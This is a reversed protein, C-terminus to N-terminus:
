ISDSVPAVISPAAMRDNNSSAPRNASKAWSRTVRCTISSAPLACKSANRSANRDLLAFRSSNNHRAPTITPPPIYALREEEPLYLGVVYM